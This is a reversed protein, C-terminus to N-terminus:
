KRFAPNMMKRQRKHNEGEVLLIGNGAVALVRSMNPKIFDHVQNVYIINPDAVIVANWSITYCKWIKKVWSTAM